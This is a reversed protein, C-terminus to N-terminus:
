LDLHVGRLVSVPPSAPPRHEHTSASSARVPVARHLPGAPKSSLLASPGGQRPAWSAMVQPPPVQPLQEPPPQTPAWRMPPVQEGRASRTSVQITGFMVTLRSMGLGNLDKSPGRRRTTAGAVAKSRSSGNIRTSSINGSINSSSCGSRRKSSSNNHISSNSSCGPSNSSSRARPSEAGRGEGTGGM